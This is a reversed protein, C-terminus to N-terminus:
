SSSTLMGDFILVVHSECGQQMDKQQSRKVTNSLITYFLFSFYKYWEKKPALNCEINRHSRKPEVGPIVTRTFVGAHLQCLRECFSLVGNNPLDVGSRAHHRQNLSITEPDSLRSVAPAPDVTNM